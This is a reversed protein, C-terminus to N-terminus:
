WWGQNIVEPIEQETSSYSQEEGELTLNGSILEILDEGIM